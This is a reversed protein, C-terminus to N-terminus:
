VKIMDYARPTSTPLMRTHDKFMKETIMVYSKAQVEESNRLMFVIHPNGERDLPVLAFYDCDKSGSTYFKWYNPDSSRTKAQFRYRASTKVDVQGYREIVFDFPYQHGETELSDSIVKDGFVEKVFLEGKRGVGIKSGIPIAYPKLDIDHKECMKRLESEKCDHLICFLETSGIRRLLPEIQWPNLWRELTYLSLYSRCGALEKNTLGLKRAFLTWSGLRTLIKQQEEVSLRYLIHEM